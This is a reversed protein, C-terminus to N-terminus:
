EWSWLDRVDNKGIHYKKLTNQSIYFQTFSDNLSALIDCINLACVNTDIKM